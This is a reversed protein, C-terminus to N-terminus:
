RIIRSRRKTLSDKNYASAARFTADSIDYSLLSRLILTTRYRDELAFAFMSSQLASAQFRQDTQWKATDLGTGVTVLTTRNVILGLIINMYIRDELITESPSTPIEAWTGKRLNVIVLGNGSRSRFPRLYYDGQLASEHVKYSLLLRKYARDQAAAAAGVRANEEVAQASVLVNIATNVSLMMTDFSRNIMNVNQVNSAALSRQFSADARQAANGSSIAARTRNYVNTYNQRAQRTYLDSSAHMADIGSVYNQMVETLRNGTDGVLSGKLQSRAVAQSLYETGNLDIRWLERGDNIAHGSVVSESAVAIHGPFISVHDPLRAVARAALPTSFLQKGNRTSVSEIAGATSYILRNGKLLMASSLKSSLQRRWVTKGSELSLAHLSTGRRGTSNVAVIALKNTVTALEPVGHLSARWALKGAPSVQSIMGNRWAVMYGDDHAVMTLPDSRQAPDKIRWLHRGDQLSYFTLKSSVVLVRDRDFEFLVQGSPLNVSWLQKGTALEFVSFKPTSSLIHITLVGRATNATVNVRTSDVSTEWMLKGNRPNIVAIRTRDDGKSAYVMYPDTLVVSYALDPNRDRDHRWLERGSVTDYLVYPGYYPVLAPSNPYRTDLDLFGVLTTGAMGPLMEDIEPAPVITQWQAKPAKSRLRAAQLEMQPTVDTHYAKGTKALDACSTLMTGVICLCGLCALKVFLSGPIGKM